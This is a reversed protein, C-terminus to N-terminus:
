GAASAGVGPEILIAYYTLKGVTEIHLIKGIITSGATASAVVKPKTDAQLEVINGVAITSAASLGDATVSYINGRHLRYGRCARGAENYFKTLDKNLREDYMMESSGIIVVDDINSNAAPVVARYLEREGTMLGTLLVVNGNDIDKAVDVPSEGTSDVEFYKCSVLEEGATTGLLLDSRFVCHAM